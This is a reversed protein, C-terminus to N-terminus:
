KSTSARLQTLRQAALRDQHTDSVRNSLYQEYYRIALNTQQQRWAVTGLGFLANRPNAAIRLLEQYDANAAEFQGLGLYAVARCLRAKESRPSVSLSSTLTTIAAGYQSLELQALGKRYLLEPRNPDRKLLEDLLMLEQPFQSNQGYLEAAVSLVANQAVYQTVYDKILAAEENTRGLRGLATARCELLLALGPGDQPARPGQLGDTVELVTAYDWAELYSKALWLKPAAWDPSLEACRAFEEIAEITNGGTILMRGTRILFAPEDVLGNAEIIERWNNYKAFLASFENQMAAIMSFPKDAPSRREAYALNIQATLNEPNLDVARRFWTRADAGHGQRQMRVAWYNLRKAYGAGIFSM